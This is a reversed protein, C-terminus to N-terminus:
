DRLAVPKETFRTVRDGDFVIGGFRAPPRVATVTAIRGHSRHFKTLADLDVDSVGDGYTVMFPEGRLTSWLRQLRGGTWTSVGTDVLHILWDESQQGHSRVEGNALDISFNGSLRPYDLFYRKIVDGKYGLAICFENFGYGAYHKLIHWLIPRGGVEVMPKPKTETEEALRSGLGGALIVTQM